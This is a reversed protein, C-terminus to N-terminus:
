VMEHRPLGKTVALYVLHLGNYVGLRLNTVLFDPWTELLQRRAIPFDSYAVVSAIPQWAAKLRQLTEVDPDVLLVHKYAM